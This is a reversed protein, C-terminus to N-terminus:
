GSPVAALWDFYSEGAKIIGDQPRYPSSNSTLVLDFGFGDFDIPDIRIKYKNLNGSFSNEGM